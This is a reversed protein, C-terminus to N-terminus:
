QHQRCLRGLTQSLVGDCLARIFQDLDLMQSAGALGNAAIHDVAFKM